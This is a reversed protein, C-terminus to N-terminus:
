PARPSSTAKGSPSTKPHGDAPIIESVKPQGDKESYKITVKAGEGANEVGKTSSTIELTEEGKDTQVVIQKKAKDVKVVTGKLEAVALALAPFLVPALLMAAIEKMMIIQRM